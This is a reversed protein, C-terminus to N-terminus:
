SWKIDLHTKIMYPRGLINSLKALSELMRPDIHLSIICVLYKQMHSSSTITYHNSEGGEM